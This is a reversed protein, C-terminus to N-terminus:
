KGFIRVNTHTEGRLARDYNNKAVARDEDSTICDLINMGAEIEKGYAYKMIKAHASNFYLYHYDNNISFLMTDSQSELSSKLLLQSDILAQEDQKRKTIDKGFLLVGIVKKNIVIPNMFVEIYLSANQTNVNDIFSFSENSLSRDYQLKWVERLPKPLSLLLNIGTKLNIGFSEYFASVFVSNAYIIEYASNIAWVSDTTNEFISSINLKSLINFNKNDTNEIDQNEMKYHPIENM